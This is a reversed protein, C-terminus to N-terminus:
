AAHHKIMEGNAWQQKVATSKNGDVVHPSSGFCSDGQGVVVIIQLSIKKKRPIVPPLRGM